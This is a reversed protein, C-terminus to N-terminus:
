PIFVEEAWAPSDLEYIGEYPKPWVGTKMCQRYLTLAALVKSRGVELVRDSARYVATAWPAKKEPVIWYCEPEEEEGESIALLDAYWAMQMDYHMEYAKKRFKRPSADLDTKMDGIVLRGDRKRGSFDLLAKCDVGYLSAFVPRERETCGQLMLRAAPNDAVSQAMAPVSEADEEKLIPLTQADRWAKGEKTSFSMAKPKISYFGSLDKGELIMSHAWTGIRMADTEEQEEDQAAKFHAASKLLHKALSFNLAPHARYEERTM